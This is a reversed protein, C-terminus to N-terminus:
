WVYTNQIHTGMSYYGYNKWFGFSNEYGINAFDLDFSSLSILNIVVDWKSLSFIMKWLFIESPILKGINEDKQSFVFVHNRSDTLYSWVSIIFYIYSVQM